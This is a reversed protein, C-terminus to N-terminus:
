LSNSYTVDSLNTIEGPKVCIPKSDVGIWVPIASPNYVMTKDVSFKLDQLATVYDKIEINTAYWVSDDGGAAECFEEIIHWNNQREFEFSHGWVYFLPMFDWSKTNNFSNLKEILNDNHHCTPHWTLFNDPLFFEGHSQVTRSYEMGLLPLLTVIQPSFGGFPYSMGRVPYHCISELNNKDVTIEEILSERPIMSLHFHNLTHVSIEHGKYLEDIESANVFDELGFSASNLHFTGRIGYRNFTEILRRDYIHGDDYSMTIAKKKANPYYEYTIKM